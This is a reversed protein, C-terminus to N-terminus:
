LNAEFNRFMLWPEVDHHAIYPIHDTSRSRSRQDLSALGTPVPVRGTNRDLANRGQTPGSLTQCQFHIATLQDPGVEGLSQSQEAHGKEDM